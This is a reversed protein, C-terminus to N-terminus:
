LQIDISNIKDGQEISKVIDMGEIVRGFVTHRGTLNMVPQSANLTIFFQSGNTDPGANAMALVGESFPLSELDERYSYGLAELQTIYEDPAGLSKLNIEDEFAYGPGGTGLQPDNPELEKSLPDGGQIVFDSVVRHFTLDDYFDNVALTAFNEATKPAAQPYIELVINGKDTNIIAQVKEREQFPVEGDTIDGIQANQDNMNNLGNNDGRGILFWGAVIIIIAIVILTSLKTM